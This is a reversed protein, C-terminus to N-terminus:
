KNNKFTLKKYNIGIWIVVILLIAFIITGCIFTFEASTNNFITGLFQATYPALLTGINAVTMVVSTSFPVQSPSTFMGVSSMTSVMTMSVAIGVLVVGVGSLILSNSITFIFFGILGSFISITLSFRKCIQPLSMFIFGGAAMAFSMIGLLTSADQATGYGKEIILSAFKISVFAFTSNFLFIFIALLWIKWDIKKSNQGLNTNNEQEIKLNQPIFTIFLLLVPLAILNVWYAQQWGNSLLVGAAFTMLFMGLGQVVSSWGLLKQQEKGDFMAIILSQSYSALLGTGVGIGIRSVFIITFNNILAPIIGSILIITLGCVITRKIGIKDALLNSLPTFIIIGLSSVTMTLEVLTSSVQPFSRIMLPITAATAGSSVVFINLLLIALKTWINNVKNNNM